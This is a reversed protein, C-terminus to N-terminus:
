PFEIIIANFQYLAFTVSIHWIVHIVPGIQNLYHRTLITDILNILLALGGILIVEHHQFLPPLHFVVKISVAIVGIIDLDHLRQYPFAHSLTSFLAAVFTTLDRYYFAVMFLGFNSVTCFFEAIQNTTQYYHERQSTQRTPEILFQKIM